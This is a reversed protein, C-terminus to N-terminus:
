KNQVTELFKTYISGLKKQSKESRKAHFLQKYLGDFEKKPYRM